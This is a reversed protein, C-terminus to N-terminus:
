TKVRYDMETHNELIYLFRLHNDERATDALLFSATVASSDWPKQPVPRSAYWAYVGVCIALGLGIGIGLGVSKLVVQKWTTSRERRATTTAQHSPNPNPSTMPAAPGDPPEPNMPNAVTPTPSSDDSLSEVQSAPIREKARRPTKELTVPRILARPGPCPDKNPHMVRRKAIVSCEMCFRYHGGNPRSKSVPSAGSAAGFESDRNQILESMEANEPNLIWRSKPRLISVDIPPPQVLGIDSRDWLQRGLFILMRLM